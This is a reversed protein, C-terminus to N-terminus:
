RQHHKSVGWSLGLSRAKGATFYAPPSRGLPRSQRTHQPGGHTHPHLGTHTHRRTALLAVAPLAAAHLLLGRGAASVSVAARAKWARAVLSSSIRRVLQMAMLARPTEPALCQVASAASAAAAVQGARLASRMTTAGSTALSALASRGGRLVVALAAGERWNRQAGADILADHGLRLLGSVLPPRAGAGGEESLRARVLRASADRHGTSGWALFDCFHRCDHVGVMYALRRLRALERIQPLSLRSEGLKFCRYEPPIAELVEERCEGNGARWLVDRTSALPVAPSSLGTPPAASPREAEQGGAECLDFM